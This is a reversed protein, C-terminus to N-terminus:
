YCSIKVIRWGISREVSFNTELVAIQNARLGRATDNSWDLVEGNAEANTEVYLSDPCGTQSVMKFKACSGFSYSCGQNSINLYAFGPFGSVEEFGKPYWPKSSAKVEIVSAATAVEIIKGKAKAEVGGLLCDGIAFKRFNDGWTGDLERLGISQSSADLKKLRSKLVPNTIAKQETEFGLMLTSSAKVWDSKALYGGANWPTLSKSTRAATGVYKNAFTISKGSKLVQNLASCTATDVKTELAIQHTEYKANKAAIEANNNAITGSVFFIAIVLIVAGAAILKGRASLGQFKDIGLDAIRSTIGPQKAPADGKYLKVVSNRFILRTVWIFLWFGATVLTLVLNWFIGVKRRKVLIAFESDDSEIVYGSKLYKAVADSSYQGNTM